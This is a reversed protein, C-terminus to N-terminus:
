PLPKLNASLMLLKFILLYFSNDFTNYSIFVTDKYGSVPPFDSRHHSFNAENINMGPISIPPLVVFVRM